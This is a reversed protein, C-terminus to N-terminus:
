RFFSPTDVSLWLLMPWLAHPIPPSAHTNPTPSYPSFTFLLPHLPSLLIHRFSFDHLPPVQSHSHAGLASPPFFLREINIVEYFAQFHSKEDNRRFGSDPRKLYNYITQVGTEM